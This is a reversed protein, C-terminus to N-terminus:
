RSSSMIQALNRSRQKLQSSILSPVQYAAEPQPCCLSHASGKEEDVGVGVGVVMMGVGVLVRVGVALAVVKGGLRVGVAV